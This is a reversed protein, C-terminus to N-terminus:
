RSARLGFGRLMLLAKESLTGRAPLIGLQVATAYLDFFGRVRFLRGRELECYFVVPVVIFKGTAPLSELPERHTALLKAPAAIFRNDHLRPGLQQLRADPFAAWLREAHAILAAPGELPEPTLPDEYHIRESCVERFADPDKGSWAAEWADILEDPGLQRTQVDRASV